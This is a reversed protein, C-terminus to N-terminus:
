HPVVTVGKTPIRYASKNVPGTTRINTYLATQTDGSPSEFLQKLSVDRLPDLWLTIQKFTTQVGPDKSILVLKETKTGSITEPGADTVNWSQTLDHSTGGFGLSFYGELQSQNRGTKFLDVQKEAPTYLRIQGGSYNVIRAPTAAPRGSPDVDFVTAGFELGEKTREFFVSGKQVTTERVVREFTDREVDATATHFAKSAADMQAYVATLQPSPAQAEVVAPLTAPVAIALLLSAFRPM